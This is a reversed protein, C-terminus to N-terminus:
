LCHITTITSNPKYYYYYRSIVTFQPSLPARRQEQLLLITATTNSATIEGASGSVALWFVGIMVSNEAKLLVELVVM